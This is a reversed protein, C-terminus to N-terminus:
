SGAIHTWRDIVNSLGEPKAEEVSDPIRGTKKYFEVVRNANGHYINTGKWWFEDRAITHKVVTIGVSEYESDSYKNDNFTGGAVNEMEEQNLEKSETEKQDM